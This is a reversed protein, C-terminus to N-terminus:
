LNLKMLAKAAELDEEDSISYDTYNGEENKTEIIFNWVYRIL